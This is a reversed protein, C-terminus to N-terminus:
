SNKMILPPYESSNSSKLAIAHMKEMPTPDFLYPQAPNSALYSIKVEYAFYTSLYEDPLIKIRELLTPSIEAMLPEIVSELPVEFGNKMVKSLFVPDRGLIKVQNNDIRYLITGDPSTIGTLINNPIYYEITYEHDDESIRETLVNRPVVFSGGSSTFTVTAEDFVVSHVLVEKTARNSYNPM